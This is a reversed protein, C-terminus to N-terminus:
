DFQRKEVRFATINQNLATSKVKLPQSPQPTQNVWNNSQKFPSEIDYSKTTFKSSSFCTSESIVSFRTLEYASSRNKIPTLELPHSINKTTLMKIVWESNLVQQINFRKTHALMQQLLQKCESSLNENFKILQKNCIKEHLEEKSKAKFLLEGHLMYHLLIGLAWVDVGKDHKLKKVVEPPMYETTGCICPQAKGGNPLYISWNFDCLKVTNNQLLVNDSKIDRHVIDKEHLYQIAQAIQYFYSFAEDESFVKKKKILEYLTGNQCHELVIYVNEKDEFNEIFEVINKHKCCQLYNIENDIHQKANYQNIYNKSIIKIACKKNNSRNIALKVKGYTGQGLDRQLLEYQDKLLKRPASPMTQQSKPPLSFFPYQIM